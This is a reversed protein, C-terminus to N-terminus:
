NIPQVSYSIAISSYSSGPTPTSVTFRGVYVKEPNDELRMKLSKGHLISVMSQRVSELSEQTNDIIFNFSGEITGLIPWASGTLYQTLDIPDESGPIDILKLTVQPVAIIPYSSPILHWTNWTNAIVVFSGSYDQAFSISHEENYFTGNIQYM